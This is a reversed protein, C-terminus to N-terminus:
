MQYRKLLHEFDNRKLVIYNNPLVLLKENVHLFKLYEIIREYSRYTKDNVAVVIGIKGLACANILSGLSHKTTTKNEYEIVLFCRPNRNVGWHM